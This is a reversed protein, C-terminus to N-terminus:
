NMFIKGQNPRGINKSMPRKKQIFLSLEFSSIRLEFCIGLNLPM